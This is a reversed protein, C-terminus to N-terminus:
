ILPSSCAVLSYEDSSNLTNKQTCELQCYVMYYLIYYLTYIYFIWYIMNCLRVRKTNPLEPTVGDHFDTLIFTFFTNPCVSCGQFIAAIRCQNGQLIM